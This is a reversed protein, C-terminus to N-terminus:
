AEISRAASPPVTLIVHCVGSPDCDRPVLRSARDRLRALDRELVRLEAIRRRVEAHRRGIM